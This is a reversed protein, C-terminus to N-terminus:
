APINVPKIKHLDQAPLLQQWTKDHGSSVIKGTDERIEKEQHREIGKEYHGRIRTSLFLSVTTGNRSSYQCVGIKKM